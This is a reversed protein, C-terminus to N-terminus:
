LILILLGEELVGGQHRCIEGYDCECQLPGMEVVVGLHRDRSLNKNKNESASECRSRELSPFDSLFYYITHSALLPSGHTLQSNQHTTVAVSCATQSSCLPGSNSLYLVGNTLREEGFTHQLQFMCAKKRVEYMVLFDM